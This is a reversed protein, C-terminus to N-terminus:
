GHFARKRWGPRGAHREMAELWAGQCIHATVVNQRFGCFGQAHIVDYRRGVMWTAPLAFSLLTTMVNRRSAPVHHFTLGAPDPEEVTNAFVHVEHDRKFRSALEAVYRSHGYRRNYDHVVFAIRLRKPAREPEPVTM